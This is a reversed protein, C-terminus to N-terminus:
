KTRDVNRLNPNKEVELVPYPLYISEAGQWTSKVVDVSEKAKYVRGDAPDVINQDANAVRFDFNKKLEDMRFEDSRRTVMAVWYGAVEWGHEIYCAEALQEATMADINVVSGDGLTVNYPDDCARERVKKLCDKAFSLDAAGSRAASEAYWLLLESYRIVRHRHDNVMGTWNPKTYDYPAAIANGQADANVTFNCFMPHYEPVVKTGDPNLAWWDVMNVITYSDPDQFTIKEAYTAKKRKGEPFRKWFAIEGWADGWAKDGLSEFRDCSTFESDNTWWPLPSYDIGLITEKNYNHGMSYVHSWDNDLYFGYQSNNDIVEKALKAAEGYYETKNLPYGAMSMYVATLASQAAQKTVYADIENHHAPEGTYSTPLVEIAAKMEKVIYDYVEAITAPAKENYETSNREIIPLPGYLRVLYYYAFARWFHAQGVAEKATNAYVTNEDYKINNIINNAAEIIKYNKEWAERVGKNNNSASFGDIEAVAQKNSAPNATIDDGQWQPYLMNTYIQSVNVQTYLAYVASNVADASNYYTKPDLQGKPDETLFDSCSASFLGAALM